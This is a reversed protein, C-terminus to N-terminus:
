VFNSLSIAILYISSFVRHHGQFILITKSPNESGVFIACNLL